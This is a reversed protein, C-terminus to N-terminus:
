EIDFERLKNETYSRDLKENDKWKDRDHLKPGIELSKPDCKFDGIAHRKLIKNFEEQTLNVSNLFDWLM